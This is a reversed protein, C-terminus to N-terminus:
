VTDLLYQLNLNRKIPESDFGITPQPVLPTSDDLAIRGSNTGGGKAHRTNHILVDPL